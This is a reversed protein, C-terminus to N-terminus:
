HTPTAPRNFVCPQTKTAKIASELFGLTFEDGEIQRIINYAAICLACALDSPTTGLAEAKSVVAPVLQMAIAVPINDGEDIQIETTDITSMSDKM